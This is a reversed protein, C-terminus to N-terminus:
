TEVFPTSSAVCPPDNFAGNLVILNAHAYRNASSFLLTPLPAVIM